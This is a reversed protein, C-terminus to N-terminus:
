GRTGFSERLLSENVHGFRFSRGTDLNVLTVEAPSFLLPDVRYFDGQYAKLTEAFPRGYDRSASSPVQAGIAALSEDDGRCYLTVRGGYLIADNTRGIAALDDPAPPPLPASGFASVVRMLDFKLEHLKHMATEVSRAVIQLTGALSRTPAVLLTLYNPQVGCKAAIDLIVAAPPLKNSELVGVCNENQPSEITERYGIHEFLPERAAAARMPGSGMAFYGDGKVEWGAYQSGLCALVPHDTHVEVLPWPSDRDSALRVTALDALCVRALLLGAELGGLAEIGFDQVSTEVGHGVDVVRRVVRLPAAGALLSYEVLPFACSNLRIPTCPM